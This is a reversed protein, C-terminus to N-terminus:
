EWGECNNNKFWTYLDDGKARAEEVIEVGSTPIEKNLKQMVWNIFNANAKSGNEPPGVHAFAVDEYGVALLLIFDEINKAYHKAMQGEGLYVIPLKGDDQNWIFFLDGNPSQGIPAFKLQAKPDSIWAPVSYERGLINWEYLGSISTNLKQADEWELLEKLIDPMAINNPFAALVKQFLNECNLRFSNVKNEIAKLKWDLAEIKFCDKEYVIKYDDIIGVFHVLGNFEYDFNLLQEVTNKGQLISENVYGSSPHATDGLEFNQILQKPEFLRLLDKLSIHEIVMKM